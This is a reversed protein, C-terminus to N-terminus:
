TYVKGEATLAVMHNGGAAVQAIPAALLPAVLQPSPSSEFTGLGLAGYKGRGWTFLRGDAALAASHSEGACVFVVGVSWLRPM